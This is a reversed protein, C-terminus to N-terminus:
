RGFRATGRAWDVIAHETDAESHARAYDDAGLYWLPCGRGDDRFVLGRGDEFTFSHGMHRPAGAGDLRDALLRLRRALWVRM